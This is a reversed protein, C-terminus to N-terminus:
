RGSSTQPQRASTVRGASADAALRALLVDVLPAQVTAPGILGPFATSTLLFAPLAMTYKTDDPPIATGDDKVVGRVRSGIPAGPDIEFRLGSVFLNSGYDQQGAELSEWIQKGTIV